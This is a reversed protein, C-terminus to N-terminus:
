ILCDKVENLLRTVDSPYMSCGSLSLEVANFSIIKSFVSNSVTKISTKRFEPYKLSFRRGMSHYYLGEDTFVICDKASGWVTLDCLALITQSLPIVCSKRANIMKSELINTGAYFGDRGNYRKFIAKIKNLRERAKKEAKKKKAEIMKKDSASTYTVGGVSVTVGRGSIKVANNAVRVSSSGVNNTISVRSNKSRRASTVKKAKKTLPKKVASEKTSTKKAPTKKDKTKTALAKKAAPKKIVAKKAATKKITPEKFKVGSEIKSSLHGLLDDIEREDAGENWMLTQIRGFGMPLKIKGVQVPLLKGKEYADTAEDKVNRSLVSQATWLVVVCKAEDLQESIVVDYDKGAPIKGDWWVKFGLAILKKALLKALAVDKRAYSIFVDVSVDESKKGTVVEISTKAPEHHGTIHKKPPPIEFDHTIEMGTEELLALNMKLGKEKMCKKIEDKLLGKNENNITKSADYIKIMDYTVLLNQGDMWINSDGNKIASLIKEIDSNNLALLVQKKEKVRLYINYLM